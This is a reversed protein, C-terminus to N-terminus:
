FLSSAHGEDHASFTELSNVNLPGPLQATKITVLIAHSPSEKDYAGQCFSVSQTFRTSLCHLLFSVSGSLLYHLRSLIIHPSDKVPM